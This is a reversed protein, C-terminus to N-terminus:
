KTRIGSFILLASDKSFYKWFFLQITFNRYQSFAVFTKFIKWKYFFHKTNIDFCLTRNKWIKTAKKSYIFKIITIFDPFYKATCIYIPIYHLTSSEFRLTMHEVMLHNAKDRFITRSWNNYNRGLSMLTLLFFPKTDTKVDSAQCTSTM